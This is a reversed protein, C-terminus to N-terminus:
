DPHPLRSQQNWLRSFVVSLHQLSFLSIQVALGFKLTEEERQSRTELACPASGQTDGEGGEGSLRQISLRNRGALDLFSMARALKGPAPLVHARWRM